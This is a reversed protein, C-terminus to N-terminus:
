RRPRAFFVLREPMNESLWRNKIATGTTSEYTKVDKKGTTPNTKVESVIAVHGIQMYRNNITEFADEDGLRKIWFVLDGPQLKVWQNQDTPDINLALGNEVCWRAQDSAFRDRDSITADMVFSYKYKTSLYYPSKDPHNYTSNIYTIGRTVFQVFSSCDIHFKGNTKWKAKNETTTPDKFSYPTTTNYKFKDRQAFYTEMCEVVKEIYDTTNTYPAYSGGHHEAVVEGFYKKNVTTMNDWSLAITYTTDAKPILAGNVCDDGMLWSITSQYFKTPETDKETTFKLIVNYNDDSQNPLRFKMSKVRDCIYNRGPSCLVDVYEGKVKNRNEEEFKDEAIQKLEEILSDIEAEEMDLQKIFVKLQDIQISTLIGSELSNIYDVLSGFVFRYELDVIKSKVEKYNSLTCKNQSPNTFSIELKSVRAELLIPPDYYFDCVYVTDGIKVTRFEEQTMALDVEYDNKPEGDKLLSEYTLSLLTGEDSTNFTYPKKIYKLGKNFKDNAEPNLVFNQGLPKDVPDGAAKRWEVNKFTIGGEGEGIGASAFDYINSKRTINSVNKSYEFRKYTKNGRNGEKYVDLYIGILFNNEFEVRFEIEINNYTSINDQILKYVREIKTSKVTKILSLLEEDIHGVKIETDQLITALFLKVNGEIHFPEAYDTILELGIGECYCTIHKKGAGHKDDNDMIQFMKFKGDYQFVIYNGLQTLEKTFMNNKTSFQFTEIGTALEQIFLANFFSAVPKAGNNSFYGIVKKNRDLVFIMNVM